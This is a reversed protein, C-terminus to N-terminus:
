VKYGEVFDSILNNINEINISLSNIKIKNKLAEIENFNHKRELGKKIKKYKTDLPNNSLLLEEYMKEGPRLGSYLIEIGDKKDTAISNGSLRIMKEALERIKIPSGMDLLFVEGGQAISNSKIVLSAAEEITMFFRNIDKHTVTVPGGDQIQKWFLPVVSGSSNLVNGFRVMSFCTNNKYKIQFAQLSLESLRKSAGMINTPNVAKDSSILTFSSVNNNHAVECLDFTAFFNNKLAMFFNEEKQLLPVHKYAAAHFITDIKHNKIIENMESSKQVDRLFFKMKKYNELNKFNMELKYLNFESSDLLILSKPNLNSIQLSLESGISGGAGTVLINKNEINKNSLKEEHSTEDRDLLDNLSLNEIELKNKMAGYNVPISKVNVNYNELNSIIKRRDSSSINVISIIVLLNPYNKKLKKIVKLNSSIKFGLIYFNKLKLNDDIFGIIKYKDNQSLLAATERGAQGAGYILIPIQKNDTNGSLFKYAFTRLLVYYFIITIFFYFVFKFSLILSYDKQLYVLLSILFSFVFASFIRETGVFSIAPSSRFFTKYGNLLYIISISILNIVLIYIPFINFYESLIPFNASFLILNGKQIFHLVFFALIFNFNFILIDSFILILTKQERSRSLLYNRIKKM